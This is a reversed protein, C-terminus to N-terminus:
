LQMKLSKLQVSTKMKMPKSKDTPIDDANKTQREQKVDVEFMYNLTGVAVWEVCIAALLIIWLYLFWGSEMAWYLVFFSIFTIWLAMSIWGLGTTFDSRRLVGDEGDLKAPYFYYYPTAGYFLWRRRWNTEM